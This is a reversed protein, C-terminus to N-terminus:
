TNKIATGEETESSSEEAEATPKEPERDTAGRAQSNAAAATGAPQGTNTPQAAPTSANKRPAKGEARTKEAADKPTPRPEKAARDTATTRATEAAPPTQTENGEPAQGTPSAGEADEERAKQPAPEPM